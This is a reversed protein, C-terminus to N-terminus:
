GAVSEIGDYIAQRRDDVKRVEADAARARRDERKLSTQVLVDEDPVGPEPGLGEIYADWDM